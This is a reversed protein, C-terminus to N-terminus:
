IARVQVDLGAASTGAASIFCQFIDVNRHCKAVALDVEATTVGSTFTLTGISAGNQYVLVTTTTSGATTL